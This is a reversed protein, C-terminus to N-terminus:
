KNGTIEKGQETRTEFLYPAELKLSSFYENRASRDSLPEYHMQSQQRSYPFLSPTRAINQATVPTDNQFIHTLTDTVLIFFTHFCCLSSNNTEELFM